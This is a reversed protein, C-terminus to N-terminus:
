SLDFMFLRWRRCFWPGLKISRELTGSRAPGQHDREVPRGTAHGRQPPVLSNQPHNPFRERFCPTHFIDRKKKLIVKPLKIKTPSEFCAFSHSNQLIDERIFRRLKTCSTQPQFGVVFFVPGKDFWGSANGSVGPGTPVEKEQLWRLALPAPPLSSTLFNPAPPSCNISFDRIPQKPQIRSKYSKIGKM